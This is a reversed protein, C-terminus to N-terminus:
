HQLELLFRVACVVEDQVMAEPKNRASQQLLYKANVHCQKLRFMYTRKITLTDEAEEM